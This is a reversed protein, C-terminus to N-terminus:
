QVPAYDAPDINLDFELAEGDTLIVFPADAVTFVNEKPFKVGKNDFFDWIKYKSVVGPVIVYEPSTTRCAIQGIEFPEMGHHPFKLVDVDTCIDKYAGNINGSAAYDGTFLIRRSGYELVFNLSDQNRYGDAEVKKPGVVHFTMGGWPIVDGTKMQTYVGNALPAHAPYVEKSPGYVVTDATGFEALILNINMCHDLHWHTAIYADLETVGVARLYQLVDDTPNKPDANGGDIMIDIDGLRVFYGDAFGLNLQHVELTEPSTEALAPVCLMWLATLLAALRKMM